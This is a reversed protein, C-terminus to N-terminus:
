GARGAAQRSSAVAAAPEAEARVPDLWRELLSGLAVHGREYYAQPRALIDAPRQVYAAPTLQAADRRVLHAAWEPTAELHFQLGISSGLVFGQDASAATGAIRVASRPTAFVDDHWFFAELGEPLADGVWTDHRAPALQLPFWGIERHRGRRVRAGGIEALLQAGLCVGLFPKDNALVQELYRKEATLWPHRQHETLSMPGGLIVLADFSSPPPLRAAEPVLTVRWEHGADRAWRPFFAPGEWPVHQLCHIRM